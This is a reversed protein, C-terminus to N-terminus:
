SIFLAYLVILLMMILLGNNAPDTKIPITVMGTDIICDQQGGVCGILDVQLTMSNKKAIGYLYAGMNDDNARYRVYGTQAIEVGNHSMHINGVIEYDSCNAIITHVRFEEGEEYEKKDTTISTISLVMM